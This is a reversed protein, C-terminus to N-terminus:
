LKPQLADHDAIMTVWDGAVDNCKTSLTLALPCRLVGANSSQGAAPQTRQESAPCSGRDTRTNASSRSHCGVCCFFAILHSDTGFTEDSKVQRRRKM